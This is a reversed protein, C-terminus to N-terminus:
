NPRQERHRFLRRIPSSLGARRSSGRSLCRLTRLAGVLICYLRLTEGAGAVGGDRGLSGLLRKRVTRTILHPEQGPTRFSGSQNGPDVTTMGSDKWVEGKKETVRSVKLRNQKSARAVFCGNCAEGSRWRDVRGERGWLASSVRGSLEGRAANM